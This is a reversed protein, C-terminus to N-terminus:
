RKKLIRFSTDAVKGTVINTINLSRQLKTLMENWPQTCEIQFTFDLTKHEVKM